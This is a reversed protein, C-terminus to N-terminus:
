ELRCDVQLLLGVPEALKKGAKSRPNDWDWRSEIM